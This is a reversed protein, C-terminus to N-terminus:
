VATLVDAQLHVQTNIIYSVFLYETCDMETDGGSSLYTTNLGNILKCRCRM